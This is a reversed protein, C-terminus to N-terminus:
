VIITYSETVTDVKIQEKLKNSPVKDTIEIIFAGSRRPIPSYWAMWWGRAVSMFRYM